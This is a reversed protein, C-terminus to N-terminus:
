ARTEHNRLEGGARLAEVNAVILEAAGVPRGGAAHPTVILHPTDWLASDAPLPEKATVDLAAGAIGGSTLASCLADEDVTSGRGVNVVLARQSMLALREANLANVTDPTGPLIMVLLDTRPLEKELEAETVVDFGARTGASRAVGRVHAGLATLLPALTQGISGFGWILVDAGLLSTIHDPTLQTQMGGLEGAWEHRKQAEFCAPLRRLLALILALAHETVPGDHLGVGSCIAVSKDFPAALAADAGASLAQVLKLRPLRAADDALSRSGRGWDVLVEADTHEDPIPSRHDYRVGVVGDPLRPDLDITDPLLVKM